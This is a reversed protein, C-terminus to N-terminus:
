YRNGESVFASVLLKGFLLEEAYYQLCWHCYTDYYTRCPVTSPFRHGIVWYPGDVAVGRLMSAGKTGLRDM